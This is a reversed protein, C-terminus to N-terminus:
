EICSVRVFLQIFTELVLDRPGTASPVSSLPLFPPSMGVLLRVWASSIRVALKAVAVVVLLAERRACQNSPALLWSRLALSSQRLALAHLRRLMGMSPLHGFTHGRWACFLTVVPGVAAQGIVVRM